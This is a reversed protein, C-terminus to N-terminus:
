REMYQIYLDNEKKDYIIKDVRNIEGLKIFM